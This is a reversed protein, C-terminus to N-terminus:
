NFTHSPTIINTTWDGNDIRFTLTGEQDAYFVSITVNIDENRSMYTLEEERNSGSLLRNLLGGSCYKGYIIFQRGQHDSASEFQLKSVKHVSGWNVDSVLNQGSSNKFKILYSEIGDTLKAKNGNNGTTYKGKEITLNPISSASVQGDNNSKVALGDITFKGESKSLRRFYKSRAGTYDFGADEKPANALVGDWASYGNTNNYTYGTYTYGPTGSQQDTALENYIAQARGFLADAAGYGASEWALYNDSGIGYYLRGSRYSNQPNFLLIDVSEGEDMSDLTEYSIPGFDRQGLSMELYDSPNNNRLLTLTAFIKYPNSSRNEYIYQSYVTEEEGDGVTVPGSFAPMGRHTAGDPLVPLGNADTHQVIYAKDSNFHSFSLGDVRVDYDTTNDIIVNFRVVPRHLQLTANVSALNVEIPLKGTLLMAEGASGPVDTGAANLSALERNYYTTFNDGISIGSYYTSIREGSENSKQWQTQDINAYAYAVYAGPSLNNFTITKTNVPTVVGQVEEEEVYQKGVVINSNDTLIVLVNRFKLGDALDEADTKTELTIDDMSSLTLIINGPGSFSNEPELIGRCSCAMLAGALLLIFKWTKM